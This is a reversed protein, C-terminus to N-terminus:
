LLKMDERGQGAQPPRRSLGSTHWTRMPPREIMSTVAMVMPSAWSKKVPRAQGAVLLQDALLQDLLDGVPEGKQDVHSQIIEGQVAGARGQGAAFGLADAQGGLHARFQGAHEVDQVFGGDAQVLAVVDLQQFGQAVQAVDAVGQDDDFVVAFGHGRGVPDHVDARAGAQQAAADHGLARGFSIARL